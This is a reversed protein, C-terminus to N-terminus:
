SALGHIATAALLWVRRLPLTAARAAAKRRQARSARRMQLAAATQAADAQFRQMRGTALEYEYGNM